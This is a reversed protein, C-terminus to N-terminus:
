RDASKKRLVLFASGAAILVAFPLMTNNDGTAPAKETDDEVEPAAEPQEEPITVQYELMAQQYEPTFETPAYQKGDIVFYFDDAM